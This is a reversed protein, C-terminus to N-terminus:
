EGAGELVDREGSVRYAVRSRRHRKREVLFIEEDSSHASSHEKDEKEEDQEEMEEDLKFVPDM